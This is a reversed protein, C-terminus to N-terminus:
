FQTHSYRGCMMSPRTSFIIGTLIFILSFYFHVLDATYFCASFADVKVLDDGTKFDIYQESEYVFHTELEIYLINVIYFLAGIFVSMDCM